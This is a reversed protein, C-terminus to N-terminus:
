RSRRRDAELSLCSLPSNGIPINVDSTYLLTSTLSIHTFLHLQREREHHQLHDERQARRHRVDDAPDHDQGPKTPAGGAVLDVAGDTVGPHRCPHTATTEFFFVLNDTKMWTNPM